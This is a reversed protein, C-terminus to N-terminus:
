SLSAAFPFLLALILKRWIGEQSLIITRFIIVATITFINTYPVPMAIVIETSELAAMLCEPASSQIYGVCLM